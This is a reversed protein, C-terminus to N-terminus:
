IKPASNVFFVIRCSGDQNLRRFQRVVAKWGALEPDKEYETRSFVTIQPNPCRERDVEADTM